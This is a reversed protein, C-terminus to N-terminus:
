EITNHEPKEPSEAWPQTMNVSLNMFCGTISFSCQHKTRISSDIDHNVNYYFWWMHSFHLYYITMSQAKIHAILVLSLLSATAVNLRDALPLRLKRTSQIQGNVQVDWWIDYHPLIYIDLSMNIPWLTFMNWIANLFTMCKFKHKNNKYGQKETAHHSM